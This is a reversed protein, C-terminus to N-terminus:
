IFTYMIMIKINSTYLIVSFMQEFGIELRLIFITAYMRNWSWFISCIVKIALTIHIYIESQLKNYIDMVYIRFTKIIVYNYIFTLRAIYIEGQHKICM